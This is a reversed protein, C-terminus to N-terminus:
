SSSGFQIPVHVVQIKTWTRRDRSLAWVTLVTRNVALADAAEGPGFTVTATGPPPPPLRGWSALDSGADLALEESGNDLAVLAFAGSGTTAGFSKVSDGPRLQLLGSTDWTAGNVTRAVLLAAGTRAALEVLAALRGGARVFGLVRAPGSSQPLRLSVPRWAGNREMFLGPTGSRTCMTGVVAKASIYGVATVASPRCSRAPPASHLEKDTLLVRWSSLSGTSTLVETGSKATVVALARGASQAALSQPQAALGDTVLGDLWTRGGNHTSILPSFTLMNSPRVGVVLDQYDAALVLGGNTATATAQVRDSWLASGAPRFFLQWFTNLPQGLDGMPVTAWTGARTQVSAPLPAKSPAAVAGTPAGPLASTGCSALGLAACALGAAGAWRRGSRVLQGHFAPVIPPDNVSLGTNIGPM